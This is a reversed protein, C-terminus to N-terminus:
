LRLSAEPLNVSAGPFYIELEEAPVAGKRDRVAFNKSSIDIVMTYFLRRYM